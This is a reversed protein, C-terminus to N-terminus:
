LKKSEELRKLYSLNNEVIFKMVEIRDKTPLMFVNVVLSKVDNINKEKLKNFPINELGGVLYVSSNAIEEEPSEKIIAQKDTISLEEFFQVNLSHVYNVVETLEKTGLMTKLENIGYEMLDKLTLIFYKMLKNKVKISINFTSIPQNLLKEDQILLSNVKTIKQYKDLKYIRFLLKVIIKEMINKYKLYGINYEQCIKEKHQVFGNDLIGYSKRFLFTETEDLPIVVSKKIDYFDEIIKKISEGDDPITKLQKKLLEFMNEKTIKNM